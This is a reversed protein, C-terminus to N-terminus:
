FRGLNRPEHAAGSDVGGHSGPHRCLGRGGHLLSRLRRWRFTGVMYPFRWVAGLGVAVGVMTMLVGFRSAFTERESHNEGM